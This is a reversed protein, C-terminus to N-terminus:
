EAFCEAACMVMIKKKKHSQYSAYNRQLYYFITKGINELGTLMSIQPAIFRRVMPMTLHIERKSFFNRIKTVFGHAIMVFLMHRHWGPYSRTEYHAMGLYSKCEQFCQEISWRATALRNLESLSTEPPMNSLFFKIKGDEHKRIYLWIEFKPLFHRNVKRCEVCRICKIATIIPGKVGEAIIIKKWPISDDNAIKTVDIPDEESRPHKYAGGKGSKKEPISVAPMTRFIYENARVSAFYYVSKPLSDLFTHDSGFAADCGICKIKFLGKAIVDAIMEKAIQNKTKFALEEPIQCKIRKNAHAADFWAKPLYLCSSILGIGKSTAYSLFVSAQCNERKGYRGCYQRGVGASDVGKKVFDSEDVSLFGDIDMLEQSLYEQYRHLLAEFWGKSDSFLYQMCRVSKEGLTSLAIPEISKRDLDSLLGQLFAQFYIVQSPRVFCSRYENIYELFHTTLDCSKLHESFNEGVMNAINAIYPNSELLM